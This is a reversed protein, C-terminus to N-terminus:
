VNRHSFIKRYIDWYIEYGRFHMKQLFPMSQSDVIYRPIEFLSMTENWRTRKTTFASNYGTTQLLMVDRESYSGKPFAFSTIKKGIKDEIIKKSDILERKAEEDSLTTFERHTVSHSGITCLPHAAIEIVQEWSMYPLDSKQDIKGVYDTTIFFIAPINYKRILDFAYTYNDEFGDDFTLSVYQMDQDSFMRKKEIDEISLFQFDQDICFRIHAELDQPPVSLWYSRDHISHYFIGFPKRGGSFTSFLAIIKNRFAHKISM